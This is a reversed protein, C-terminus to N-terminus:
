DSSIRRKKRLRKRKKKKKVEKLGKESGKTDSISAEELVSSVTLSPAMVVNKDAKVVPEDGRKAKTLAKRFDDKLSCFKKLLEREKMGKLGDIYSKPVTPNLEFYEDHEGELFAPEGGSEGGSSLLNEDEYEYEDESMEDVEVDSDEFMDQQQTMLSEDIKASTELECLELELAAFENELPLSADCADLYSLLVRAKDVYERRLTLLPDEKTKEEKYVGLPIDSSSVGTTIARQGSRRKRELKALKIGDVDASLPAGREGHKTKRKRPGNANSQYHKTGNQRGGRRRHSPDRIDGQTEGHEFNEIDRMSIDPIGLMGRERQMRLREERQLKKQKKSQILRTAAKAADLFGRPQANVAELQQRVLELTYFRKSTPVASGYMSEADNYRQQKRTGISGTGITQRNNTKSSTSSSSDGRTHNDDNTGSSRGKKNEDGKKLRHQRRRRQRHKRVEARRSLYSWFTEGTGCSSVSSSRSPLISSQYVALRPNSNLPNSSTQLSITANTSCHQKQKQEFSSTSGHHRSLTASPNSTQTPSQIHRSLHYMEAEVAKLDRLVTAARKSYCEWQKRLRHSDEKSMFAGSNVKTNDSKSRDGSEDNKQKKNAKNALKDRSDLKRKLFALRETVVALWQQVDRTKLWLNSMFKHYSLVKSQVAAVNSENSTSTQTTSDPMEMQDNFFDGSIEIELGLCAVDAVNYSSLISLLFAQYADYSSRGKLHGNCSSGRYIQSSHIESVIHCRRAFLVASRASRLLYSTTTMNHNTNMQYQTNTMEQHTHILRRAEEKFNNGLELMTRQREHLGQKYLALIENRRNQVEGDFLQKSKLTPDQNGSHNGTQNGTHFHMFAEVGLLFSVLSTDENKRKWKGKINLDRWSTNGKWAKLASRSTHFKISLEREFNLFPQQITGNDETSNGQVPEPVLTLVREHTTAEYLQASVTKNKKKVSSTAQLQLKKLDKCRSCLLSTYLHRVCELEWTFTPDEEGGIFDLHGRTNRLCVAYLRHFLSKQHLLEICNVVEYKKCCAILSRNVMDLQWTLSKLGGHWDEVKMAKLAADLSYKSATSGAGNSAQGASSSSNSIKVGKGVTTTTKEEENNGFHKEVKAAVKLTINEERSYSVFRKQLKKFKKPGVIKRINIEADNKKTKKAEPPPGNSQASARCTKRLNKIESLLVPISKLIDDLIRHQLGMRLECVDKLRKKFTRGHDPDHRLEHRLRKYRGHKIVRYFSQLADIGPKEHFYKGKYTGGALVCLANRVAPDNRNLSPLNRRRRDNENDHNIIDGDCKAEHDFATKGHSCTGGKRLINQKTALWQLFPFLLRIIKQYSNTSREKHSVTKMVEILTQLYRTGYILYSDQKLIAESGKNQIDIIKEVASLLGHIGNNQLSTSLNPVQFEQLATTGDGLAEYLRSFTGLLISEAIDKNIRCINM